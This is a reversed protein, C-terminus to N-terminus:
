RRFTLTAGYFRPPGAIFSPMGIGDGTNGADKIYSEDAANDVFLELGWAANAARYGIRLNVLGYAEQIEDQINDPVLARPPQQLNPRDNDDDFFVESQWTYTPRAYIQGGMADFHFDAGFSASNDPSLRFRNGDRIGTEFRSHNYAYTAFLDANAGANLRGQLEVGYAKAEGANTVVFLVGQQETTQFNKYNYSFLAGDLQLRGNLFAGKAGVEFSDVTEADIANFRVPSFPAAPAGAALVKPRRGRAYNAYLNADDSLAYRATLRWTVGDNKLGASEKDGNNSTPQAGLGFLPLLSAPFNAAGPAALGNLLATRVPAPQSLAGIFGGLISRGNTVSSAFSSTKDDHSYRLGGSVELRETLDFSVDAYVDVSDTESFNETTERHASKLNAAIAQALPTSLAIGNAGAVGQLLQATFAPNGFLALPAPDTAPRGPIAGGGNLTSTLRALLVREDFQTPARQSGTEHFFSLGAFARVKGGADYNLRFDQSGQSGQADEAATLAPLSIGDADFVEISHFERWATTSNLTLNDSMKWAAIGTLGWVTRDLGLQKGGEFGDGAVLAAPEQPQRGGLVAGTVPDTPSYALSKFSTGAPKDTQYNAILDVTLNEPEFRLAARYAQTDVSNFDEGKLANEVYGDRSKIRAALRFAAIDGMPVNIMGEVLGYGYNGGSVTANAAFATPDAKNQVINVAGILAGRGYLTSQPGKAIEVRELDLLEVYSGRSKSISVGDQYVSVRPEATADGSDSTIGRMVFGPNNPSQNQVEFGPVFASLADFEQVGLQQLFSGSYATLAFPVDIAKQERLQATVVVEEVNTQNQAFAPAALSLATIAVASLLEIKRTM